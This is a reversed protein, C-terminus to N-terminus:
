FMWGFEVFLVDFRPSGNASDFNMWQSTYGGRIFSQSNFEYRVGVTAQYSFADATKTPYSTYCVYGWWPDWWCGTVPAGDPINTDLWSWGIGAGVYPTFQGNEIFNYNLNLSTTWTEYSGSIGVSGGDDELVTADYGVSAWQFGFTTELRDNFNYGFMTSLGFDNDTSVTSGNEFDLDAGLQYAAGLSFEWREARDEAQAVAVSGLFALVTCATIVTTTMARKVRMSTM